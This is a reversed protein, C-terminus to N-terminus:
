EDGCVIMDDVVCSLGGLSRPVSFCVRGLRGMREMESIHAALEVSAM